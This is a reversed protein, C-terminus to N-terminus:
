GRASRDNWPCPPIHGHRWWSRDWHPEGPASLLLLVAVKLSVVGCCASFCSFSSMGTVVGATLLVASKLCIGRPCELLGSCNRSIRFHYALAM